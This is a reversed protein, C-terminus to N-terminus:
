SIHLKVSEANDKTEAKEMKVKENLGECHWWLCDSSEREFDKDTKTM